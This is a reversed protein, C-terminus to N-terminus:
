PLAATVARELEVDYPSESLAMLEVVRGTRPAHLITAADVALGVHHIGLNGSRRRFFLQEGPIPASGSAVHEGRQATSDRSVINGCVRNALHILGSCDVGWGSLGGWLYPLGVLSTAISLVKRDPKTSYVPLPSRGVAGDCRNIWWNAGGVEIQLREGTEATLACVTGMSLFGAIPSHPESSVPTLRTLLTVRVEGSTESIVPPVSVMHASRIYGPYGNLDKPTRQWPLRVEAWGDSEGVVVVPEGCLAQTSLRDLLGLREVHGQAALWRAIDPKTRTVCEDSERIATPETWVNTVPVSICADSM